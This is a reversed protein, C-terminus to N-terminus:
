PILYITTIRRDSLTGATSINTLQMRLAAGAPIDKVSHAENQFGRIDILTYPQQLTITDNIYDVYTEGNRQTQTPAGFTISSGDTSVFRAYMLDKAVDVLTSERDRQAAQFAAVKSQALVLEHGNRYARYWGIGGVIILLACVVSLAQKM